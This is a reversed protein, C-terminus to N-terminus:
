LKGSVTRTKYTTLWPAEKHKSKYVYSNKLAILNGLITSVGTYTRQPTVKYYIRSYGTQRHLESLLFQWQNQFAPSYTFFELRGHLNFLSKSIKWSRLNYNVMFYDFETEQRVIAYGIMIGQYHFVLSELKTNILDFIKSRDKISKLDKLLIYIDNKDREVANRVTIQGRLSFKCVIYLTDSFYAGPRPSVRVFYKEYLATKQQSPVTILAFDNTERMTFAFDLLNTLSNEYGELIALVEIEFANGHKLKIWQKQRLRGLIFICNDRVNVLTTKNGKSVKLHM